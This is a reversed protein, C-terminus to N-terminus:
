VQALEPFIPVGWCEGAGGLGRYVTGALEACLEAFECGLGADNPDCAVM